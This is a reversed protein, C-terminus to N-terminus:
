RAAGGAAFDRGLRGATELHARREAEGDLAGLMLELGANEIGCFDMIGTVLQVRMADDYGRKRYSAADNGGVGILLARSQPMKGAGDYALGYNWVRDIWGKTMAPVSWWWVPFVLAIADNRQIRAWEASVADSYGKRDDEWDPEDVLPMRPDFGEAYLDAIEPIHGAAQLGAVFADLVAGSFSARRPHDFVVLVKM